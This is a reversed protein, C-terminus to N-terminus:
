EGTSEERVTVMIEGTAEHVSFQLDVNHIMSLNKQIDAVVETMHAVDQPKAGKAAEQPVTSPSPSSAQAPPALNKGATTVSGVLM